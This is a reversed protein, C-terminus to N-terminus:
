FLVKQVNLYVYKESDINKFFSLSQPKEKEFVKM